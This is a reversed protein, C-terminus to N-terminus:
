DKFAAGNDIGRLMKVTRAIEGDLSPLDRMERRRNWTLLRTPDDVHGAGNTVGPRM